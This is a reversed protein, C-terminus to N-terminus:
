FGSEKIYRKLYLFFPDSSKKLEFVTYLNKFPSYINKKEHSYDVLVKRGKIRKIHEM